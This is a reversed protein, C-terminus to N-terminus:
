FAAIALDAATVIGAGVYQWTEKQLTGWAWLYYIGILNFFFPGVVSTWAVTQFTEQVSQSPIVIAMLWAVFVAGWIWFQTYCLFKYGVSSFLPQGRLWWRWFAGPGVSLVLGMVGYVISAEYPTLDILLTTFEPVDFGLNDAITSFGGIDATANLFAAM